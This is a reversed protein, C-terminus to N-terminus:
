SPECHQRVLTLLRGLDLPKKLLPIGSPARSPDSTTILIPVKGLRDSERMREIVENGSLVPMLLDLIVLFPLEEELCAMAAAGDAATRVTFGADALFEELTDRVDPEDDVILVHTM